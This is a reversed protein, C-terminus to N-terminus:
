RKPGQHLTLAKAWVRDHIGTAPKNMRDGYGGLSAKMQLPPTIDVRAVGAMLVGDSLPAFLSIGLLAAVCLTMMKDENICEDCRIDRQYLANSNWNNNSRSFPCPTM